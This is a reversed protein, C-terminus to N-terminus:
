YVRGGFGCRLQFWGVIVRLRLSRLRAGAQTYAQNTIVLAIRKEAQAWAASPVLLLLLFITVRVM